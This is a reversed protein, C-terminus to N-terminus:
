MGELALSAGSIERALVSRMQSEVQSNIARAQEASTGTPVTIKVDNKVSMNIPSGGRGSAAQNAVVGANAGLGQDSSFFDMAGKIPNSIFGKFRTWKDIMGDIADSFILGIGNITDSVVNKIANFTDTITIKLAKNGDIWDYIKRAVWGLAVGFAIAAAAIWTLPNAFLAINFLWVAVKLAKFAATLIIVWKAATVFNEFGGAAKILTQTVASVIVLIEWMKELAFTLKDVFEVAKVKIFERNEILWERSKIVIETMVPLLGSLITVKLGGIVRKMNDLEDNFLESNKLTDESIVAGMRRFAERQKDIAETGQSLVVAMRQGGRGFLETAYAARKAEDPINALAGTVDGLIQAQSKAQGSSDKLSIGLEKFTDQAMKTGNRADGVTKSLRKLSVDFEANAVGGQDLVYAYEQYADSAISADRASKAIKDGQEAVAQTAKFLGAAVAGAGVVVTALTKTLTGMAKDFSKVKAEDTEFGLRSVLERVIM